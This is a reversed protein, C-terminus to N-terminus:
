CTALGDVIEILLIFSNNQSSLNMEAKVKVEHKRCLM